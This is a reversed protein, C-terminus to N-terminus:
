DKDIDILKGDEGVKLEIKKGDPMRVDVEYIKTKNGSITETEKEIEEIIGGSMNESITKQVAPPIDSWQVKEDSFAPMSFALAVPLLIAIFSKKNM